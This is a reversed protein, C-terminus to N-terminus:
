FYLFAAIEFLKMDQKGGTYDQAAAEPTAWAFVATLYLNESVSYDAYINIEQAFRDDSVPEGFMNKEDLSFNYYILGLSLSEYPVVNLKGMHTKQNSNFLYYEGVIEGMFHNGWGRLAGYFIPDFSEYNGDAGDEDGSFFAYKYTLTPSWPLKAFTYGIESYYADADVNLRDGETEKVYEASLFLNEIGMNGQARVSYIDMGERNEYFSGQKADTVTMYSAGITGLNDDTYEVNIGYLETDAYDVDSMLYFMDTHVAGIDAKAIATKKFSKRPATWFSGYINDFEGDAILFGDGISFEQEGASIDLTDVGIGSLLGTKFGLYAQESAWGDSNGSTFDAVDGDGYTSSGVISLGGYVTGFKESTYSANLIPKFFMEYWGVSTENDSFRGAGFGANDSSFIGAGLEINLSSEFGGESYLSFAQVSAAGFLCAVAVLTVCCKKMMQM